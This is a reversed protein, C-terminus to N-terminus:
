RNALAEPSLISHGRFASSGGLVGRGRPGPYTWIPSTEIVPTPPKATIGFHLYFDPHPTGTMIAKAFPAIDLPANEAVLTCGSAKVFYLHVNLMEKTADHRFVRNGRVRDGPTLSPARKRLEAHLSAWAMDHPQTRTSNCYGCIVNPWKLGSADLDRVKCNRAKSNHLYLPRQPSTQGFVAKLDSKKSKHGGSDAPANNCIWCDM